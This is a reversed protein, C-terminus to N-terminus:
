VGALFYQAPLDGNRAATRIWQVAQVPDPRIGWGRGIIMGLRFQAPPYGSQALKNLGAIGAVHNSDMLALLARNYEISSRDCGALLLAMLPMLVAANRWFNWM